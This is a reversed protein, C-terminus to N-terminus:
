EAKKNKLNTPPFVYSIIFFITKALTLYFYIYLFIELMAEMCMHIVVWIPEGRGCRKVVEQDV